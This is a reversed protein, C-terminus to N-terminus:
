SSHQKNKELIMRMEQIMEEKNINEEVPSYIHYDCKKIFAVAAENQKQQFNNKGILDTMIKKAAMCFEKADTISALAPIIEAADYPLKKEEEQKILTQKAKIFDAKEKKIALAREEEKKNRRYSIFGGLVVVAAIAPVIWLYKRNTFDEQYVQQVAAHSTKNASFFVQISDSKIAQYKSSSPNFFVFIVPPIKVAGAQKGTFPIDFTKTSNIPFDKNNVQQTDSGEFHEIDAPWKIDPNNVADINGSGSITILLHGTENLALTDKQAAVEMTFSGTVGYFGSPKTNAPLPLVNIVTEKSSVSFRYRIEKSPDTPDPLSVVDDVICKALIHRGPENATLQVKRIIYTKYIEGDLEETIAGEEGPLEQVSYGDFDPQQLVSPSSTVQEYFKYTVEFPEGAYVKNKSCFVKIFRGKALVSQINIDPVTNDSSTQAHGWISFFIFLSLIFKRYMDM